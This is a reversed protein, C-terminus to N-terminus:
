RPQDDKRPSRRVQIWRVTLVAGFAVLVIALVPLVTQCVLSSADCVPNFTLLFLVVGIIPTIWLPLRHGVRVLPNVLVLSFATIVGAVAILAIWYFEGVGALVGTTTALQEALWPSALGLVVSVVLLVVALTEVWAETVLNKLPRGM